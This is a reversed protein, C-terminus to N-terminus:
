AVIEEIQKVKLDDQEHAQKCVQYCNRLNLWVLPSLSILQLPILTAKIEIDGLEQRRACDVSLRVSPIFNKKVFIHLFINVPNTHDDRLRYHILVAISM